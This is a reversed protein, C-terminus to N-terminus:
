RRDLKAAAKAKLRLRIFFAATAHELRRPLEASINMSSSSSCCRWTTHRGARRPLASQKLDFDEVFADV